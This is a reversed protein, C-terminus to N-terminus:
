HRARVGDLLTTAALQRAQEHTLEGEVVLRLGTLLLSGLADGVWRAPLEPALEGQRQGREVLRAIPTALRARREAQRESHTRQLFSDDFLIHYQVAVELLAAVVRRLTDLVSGDELRCAAIAVGADAFAQEHLAEILEDRAPFHRYLTARGLGAATAIEAMGAGADRALVQAAADLIRRTNREVDARRREPVAASSSSM